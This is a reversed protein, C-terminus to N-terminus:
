KMSSPIEDYWPLSTCNEYADDSGYPANKYGNDSVTWLKPANAMKSCGSFIKAIRIWYTWSTNTIMFSLLNDDAYRLETCDMFTEQFSITSSPWDDKPINSIWSFLEASVRTIKTGKFCGTFTNPEKQTAFLNVPIETINTEAFTWDIMHLKTADTFLNEPIETIATSRFMNEVSQLKTMGQLLKSPIKKFSKCNYFAYDLITFGRHYKFVKEPIEYFYPASTNPGTVCFDPTYFAFGANTTVRKINIPVASLIRTLSSEYHYETSSDEKKENMFMLVFKVDAQLTLKTKYVGSKQYEFKRESTSKPSTTSYGYSNEIKVEGNGKLTFAIKDKWEFIFVNSAEESKKWLLVNGGWIESTEKGKVPFGTIEQRNLFAKYIM